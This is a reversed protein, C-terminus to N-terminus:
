STSIWTDRAEDFDDKTMAYIAYDRPGDASPMFNRMVGEFRFGLRTSM